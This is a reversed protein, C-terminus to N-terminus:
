PTRLRRSVTAIQATFLENPLEVTVAHEQGVLAHRSRRVEVGSISQGTSTDPPANMEAFLKGNGFRLMM